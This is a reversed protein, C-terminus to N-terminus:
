LRMLSMGTAVGTLFSMARGGGPGVLKKNTLPSGEHAEEEHMSSGQHTQNHKHLSLQKHTLQHHWVWWLVLCSTSAQGWCKSWNCTEANGAAQLLLTESCPQCCHLDTATILVYWNPQFLTEYHCKCTHMYRIKTVNARLNRGRKEGSGWVMSRVIGKWIRGM